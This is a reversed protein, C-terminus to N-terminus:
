AIKLYNEYFNTVGSVWYQNLGQPDNEAGVPCYKAGIEEITNLGLDFYYTKLIRVFDNLGNEYNSYNRLGDYDMIGGFNYNNLFAKSTWNGTEHRSIAIVLLAQNKNLGMEISKNFINTENINSFTIEKEEKEVVKETNDIIEIALIKEEVITETKVNNIKVVGVIAFAVLSYIAVVKALKPLKNFLKVVKKNVLHIIFLVGYVFGVLLYIVNKIISKLM